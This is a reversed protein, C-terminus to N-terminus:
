RLVGDIKADMLEALLVADVPTSDGMAMTMVMALLSDRGFFVWQGNSVGVQPLEVMLAFGFAKEGVGSVKLQRSDLLKLGGFDGVMGFASQIQDLTLDDVQGLAQEVASADDLLIVMSAITESQGPGSFMVMHAKGGGPVALGLAETDFDFSMGALSVYGRPVDDEGLTMEGLRDSLDAVPTQATAAPTATAVPPAEGPLGDTENGTSSENGDSGCAVLLLGVLAVFLWLIRKM